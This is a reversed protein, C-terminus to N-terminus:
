KIRKIPKAPVGVCVTHPPLEGVVVAGAGVITGQGIKAGALLIVDAGLWVTDEVIIDQECFHEPLTVGDELYHNYAIMQVNPGTLVNNGIRIVASERGAWLINNHNISSGDGIYIREANRLLATPWIRVGKGLHAQSIGKVHNIIYYFSLYAIERLCTFSFGYRIVQKVYQFTSPRKDYIKKDNRTSM